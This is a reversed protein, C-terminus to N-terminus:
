SCTSRPRRRREWGPWSRATRDSLDLEVPEVPGPSPSSAARPRARRRAGEGGAAEGARGRDRPRHRPERRHRPLDARRPGDVSGGRTATARQGRAARRAVLEPDDWTPVHGCGPLDVNRVWAPCGARGASSAISSPGRRAHDAHGHQALEFVSARMARNAADFGPARLYSSILRAAAEPPVREPHAISGSLAATRLADNRLLLPLLPLAAAGLSRASPGPRPGLPRAWLGAPAIATVSRARGLRELELAVWGGLSNGAVHATALGLEDM